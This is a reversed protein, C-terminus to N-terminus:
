AADLVFNSVAYFASLLPGVLCEFCILNGQLLKFGALGILDLYSCELYNLTLGVGAFPRLYSFCFNFLRIYKAPGSSFGTGENIIVAFAYFFSSNECNWNM